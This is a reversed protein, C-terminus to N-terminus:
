PMYMGKLIKALGDIDRETSIDCFSKYVLVGNENIIFTVRMPMEGKLCKFSKSIKKDSDSVM